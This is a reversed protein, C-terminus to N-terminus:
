DADLVERFEARLTTLTYSDYGMNHTWLTGQIFGFWRYLFRDDKLREAMEADPELVAQIMWRVHPLTEHSGHTVNEAKRVQFIQSLFEDYSRLVRKMGENM